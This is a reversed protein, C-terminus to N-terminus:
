REGIKLTLHKERFLSITVRLQKLALSWLLINMATWAFISPLSLLFLKHKYYPSSFILFVQFNSFICSQWFYHKATESLTLSDPFLSLHRNLLLQLLITFYCLLFVHNLSDHFQSTSFPFSIFLAQSTPCGWRFMQGKSWGKPSCWWLLM